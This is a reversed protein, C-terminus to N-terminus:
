RCNGSRGGPCYRSSITRSEKIRPNKRVNAEVATTIERLKKLNYGYFTIQSSYYEGSGMSSSYFQPDFGTVYIDLGAFQTAMQILEEKLVYPHYSNEIEPPFKIDLTAREATIRANMEKEYAQEVVKEEFVPAQLSATLPEPLASVPDPPTADNLDARVFALPVNLNM